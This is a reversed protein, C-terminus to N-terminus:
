KKKREKNIITMIETNASKIIQAYRFFKANWAGYVCSVTDWHESERTFSYLTSM